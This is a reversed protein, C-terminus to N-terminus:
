AGKSAYTAAPDLTAAGVIHRVRYQITDDDFSGEDPNVAGGGVATGQDNKVRLDPNEHGRLFGVVLAKRAATPAPLLFWTSGATASNDIFSLWPNVVITVMGSLYNTEVTTTDGTTRRIESSALIRRAQTQLGPPVVLVAATNVVLRGDPGKRQSIATLAADLNELTLPKTDVANANATKFFEANVGAPSVLMSAALYDETDRAGQALDAPLNQLEDLDDNIIDEFTIHFRGGRKAVSIEYERGEKSRAPYNTAEPVPDLIARGGFLDTFKKPKFNRVTTRAAMGSWVPTIEEYRAMSERDLVEGTASRFLDSTTIAEAVDLMKRRDGSFAAGLMEAARTVVAESIPAPRKFFSENVFDSGSTVEITELETPM